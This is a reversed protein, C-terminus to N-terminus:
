SSAQNLEFSQLLTKAAHGDAAAIVGHGEASMAKVLMEWNLRGAEIVLVQFV